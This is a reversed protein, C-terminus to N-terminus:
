MKYSWSVFVMRGIRPAGYATRIDANLLNAGSLRLVSKIKPFEYNIQADVTTFSPIMGDGFSSQWLYSDSWKVNVGFGFDKYVKNGALGVNVKHKPTNFGPIIDDELKSTDIDSYTYNLTAQYNKLFYYALGATAGYSPVTSSSNTAYQYLKRTPNTESHTLLANEGSEEGAKADGLIKYARVNGIFNTYVSYYASADFYLGSKVIGRYGVELTKVNEPQIANLTITQLLEPRVEYTSNYHSMFTDVSAKTYLNDQGNLNGSLTIPGIDLLLYQDQLTPARFASQASVRFNHERHTYSVSLRPSLQMNYNRNKDYRLSGMLKLRNDLFRKTAQSYAAYEYTSIDVFEADPNARGDSLTDSPNMLTDSFITGYSQPNYRRYVAGAIVDAFTFNFNYQGELHQLSSRDTFKSGKRLDPNDTIQTKLSDFKQSDSSIWKGEASIGAAKHASDVMWKEAEKSYGDTLSDLTAFYQSLYGGVYDTIGYKSMNIATFVIDYSDGADEITTYGKVTYNKGKMELKHQQFGINNISYRNTGQYVATGQGYKFLYSIQTSDNLKYYLGAGTKLSKARPTLIESEMYGPANVNITGPYATPYFWLYTNLAAYDDREEQTLSPDYQKEVIIKSLNVDTSIDGYRNAVTDDAIWDDASMYQATIKYGFKEDKGFVGAYRFQGDIYNRNGGKMMVDLGKYDFPNKTTMNVVGQFANPGYMASAAGSIVEINELDLDTAGVLNGVPFNLGPAQNDMGDIFQVSRFPSTTNFGRMNVSKFGMSSTIVDVGKLNGLSQYFDGSEANEIKKANIKQIEVPAEMISESVRSASVVVEKGMIAVPEMVFDVNSTGKKVTIEQTGYGVFTAQLIISEKDGFDVEIEFKGNIDTSAGVSTGKILVNAFAQPQGTNKDKVIGSIKQTQSYAITTFLVFLLSIVKKSM